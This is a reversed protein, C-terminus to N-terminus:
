RRPQSWSPVTTMAGDEVSVRVITTENRRLLVHIEQTSGEDVPRLVLAREGIPMRLELVGNVRGYLAGDIWLDATGKLELRLMSSADVLWFPHTWRDISPSSVVQAMLQTLAEPLRGTVSSETWMWCQEQGDHSDEVRMWAEARQPAGAECTVRTAVDLVAKMQETWSAVEDRTMLSSSYTDPLPPPWRHVSSVTWWGGRHAWTYVIEPHPSFSPVYVLQVRRWDKTKSLMPTEDTGGSGMEEAKSPPPSASALTAEGWSVGCLVSLALWRTVCALGRTRWSTLTHDPSTKM